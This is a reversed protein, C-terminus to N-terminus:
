RGDKCRKDGSLGFYSCTVTKTCMEDVFPRDYEDCCQVQETGIEKLTTAEFIILVMSTIFFILFLIKCIMEIKDEKNM